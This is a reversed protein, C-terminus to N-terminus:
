KKAAKAEIPRIESKRVKPPAVEHTLEGLQAHIEYGPYHQRCGHLLGELRTAFDEIKENEKSLITQYLYSLDPGAVGIGQQKATLIYYTTGILM